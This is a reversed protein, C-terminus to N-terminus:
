PPQDTPPPRNADVLARVADSVLRAARDLPVELVDLMEFMSSSSVLLLVTDVVDDRVEPAIGPAERELLARTVDRFFPIRARRVSAGNPSVHQARIFAERELLHEWAERLWADLDALDFAAAPLNSAAVRDGVAAVADILSQRTPFYRYVTRLSVASARAVEPMTFDVDNRETVLGVVADIIRARTREVHEVRVPQRAGDDV